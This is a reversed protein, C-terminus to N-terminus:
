GSVRSRDLSQLPLQLKMGLRGQGQAQMGETFGNIMGNVPSDAIFSLFDATAGEAEGSINLQEEHHLLDPIQARVRSLRVKGIYAERASVELRAGRFLFDGEIGTIRPWREGYILTGGNV